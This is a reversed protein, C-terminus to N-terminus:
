AAAEVIEKLKILAKPWLENLYKAFNEDQADIDVLVETKGDRDNLTYNEYGVWKKAEESTTDEVGNMVVGLHKISVFEPKRSEEIQSTMGGVAGKEDASLFQIKSGKEWSGQFYSGPMFVAAWERYSKDSLMLDWVKARPADITISFHLTNAM